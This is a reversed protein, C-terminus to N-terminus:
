APLSGRKINLWRIIRLGDPLSHSAWFCRLGRLAEEQTGTFSGQRVSTRGNRAAEIEAETIVISGSLPGPKAGERM